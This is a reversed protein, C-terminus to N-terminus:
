DATKVGCLMDQEKGALCLEENAKQSLIWRNIKHSSEHDILCLVFKTRGRLDAFLYDM